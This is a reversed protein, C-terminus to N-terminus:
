CAIRDDRGWTRIGGSVGHCSGWARFKARLQPYERGETQNTRLGSEARDLSYGAPLDGQRLVLAKPDLKAAGAAAAFVASLASVVILWRM